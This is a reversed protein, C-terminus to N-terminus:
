ADHAVDGEYREREDEEQSGGRVCTDRRAESPVGM